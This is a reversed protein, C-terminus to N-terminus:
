WVLRKKKLEKEGAYKEVIWDLLKEYAPKKKDDFVVDLKNKIM